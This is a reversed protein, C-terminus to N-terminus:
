RAGQDSLFARLVACLALHQPHGALRALMTRAITESTAEPQWHVGIRRRSKLARRAGKASPQRRGRADTITGVNPIESRRTLARRVKAVTKDSVKVQRAIALNSKDPQAKLVKAALERRQEVSLHRRHLNVSLVYGVPDIWPRPGQEGETSWYEFMYTSHHSPGPVDGGAISVVPMSPDRVDLVVELGVLECADLRSRGDLLMFEQHPRQTNAGPAWFVLPYRLGNAKIDQGLALLDDREMPPLLDCAPHVKIHKRWGGAVQKNRRDLFDPIELDDDRM